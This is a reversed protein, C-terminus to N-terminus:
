LADALPRITFPDLRRLTYMPSSSLEPGRGDWERWPDHPASVLKGTLGDSASSALFVAAAAAVTPPVFGIGTTRANVIQQYDPSADAGAALVEDQLRTDVLGPAIANVDIHVDKTELALNETFRVIAAKSVAYASFFPRPATAGGGAMNIIKGGGRQIMLPLFGKCCHVVGGLNVAITRWWADLPTDDIRGIPGQIGANNVLIDTGGLTAQVFDVLRTVHDISSVDCPFPFLRAGAIAKRKFSELEIESRSAIVVKAGEALFAEAIAAGIGRAGGTVVATRGALKM